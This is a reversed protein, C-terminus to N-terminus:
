IAATVTGGHRVVRRMEAVARAADPIFQLVLMSFARDFSNDEFPLAQADAQRLNVKPDSNRARAFEL